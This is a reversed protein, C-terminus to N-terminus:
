DAFRSAADHLVVTGCDIERSLSTLGSDAARETRAKIQQM